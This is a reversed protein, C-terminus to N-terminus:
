LKSQKKKLREWKREHIIRVEKGRMFIGRMFIGRM